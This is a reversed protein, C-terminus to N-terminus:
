KATGTMRFSVGVLRQLRLFRGGEERQWLPPLIQTQHSIPPPLQPAQQAETVRKEAPSATGSPLQPEAAPYRLVHEALPDALPSTAFFFSVKAFSTESVHTERNTSCSLM